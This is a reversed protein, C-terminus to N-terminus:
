YTIDRRLFMFKTGIKPLDYNTNVEYLVKNSYLIYTNSATDVEVVMGIEEQYDYQCGTCSIIIFFLIFFKSLTM